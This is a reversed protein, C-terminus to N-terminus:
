EVLAYIEADITAQVVDFSVLVPAGAKGIGVGKVPKTEMTMNKIEVVQLLNQLWDFFGLINYYGGTLEVKMPVQQYFKEKTVKGGVEFKAVRIGLLDGINTVRNLLSPLETERPLQRKQEELDGELTAVQRILGPKQAIEADYKTLTAQLETKKKEQAAYEEEYSPHLFIWYGLFVLVALVLGGLVMYPKKWRAMADYPLKDLLKEM